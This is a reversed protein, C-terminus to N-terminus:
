KGQCKQAQKSERCYIEADEAIDVSFFHTTGTHTKSMKYKKEAAKYVSQTQFPPRVGVLPKQLVFIICYLSNSLKREFKRERHKQTGHICRDRLSKMKMKRRMEKERGGEGGHKVSYIGLGVALTRRLQECQLVGPCLMFQQVKKLRGESSAFFAATGSQM